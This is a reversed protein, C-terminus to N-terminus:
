GYILGSAKECVEYVVDYQRDIMPTIHEIKKQTIKKYAFYPIIWGIFAPIALIICLPLNNALYSFMAGAMFASGIIGISYAVASPTILKSEELKEIEKVQSEFERQLRTLETKNPLKRNRKFKLNVNSVSLSHGTGELKWGFSPYADVYVTEMDRRVSIEKYEYAIFNNKSESM